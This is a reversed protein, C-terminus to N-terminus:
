SSKRNRGCFPTTVERLSTERRDRRERRRDISSGIAEALMSLTVPPRMALTIASSPPMPMTCRPIDMSRWPSLTALTFRLWPWTISCGSLRGRPAVLPSARSNVRLWLM